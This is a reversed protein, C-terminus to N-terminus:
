QNLIEELKKDLEQLTAKEKTKKKQAPEKESEPKTKPEDTKESQPSETSETLPKIKDIIKSNLVKKIKAEAKKEKEKKPKPQAAIFYRLINKELNIQENIEKIQFPSPLSFDFTLYFAEAQKQIPYALKKKTVKDLPNIEQSLFGGKQQIIKKIKEFIEEIQNSELLPSLLFTAQYFKTEDIKM